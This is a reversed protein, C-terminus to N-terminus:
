RRPRRKGTPSPSACAADEAPPSLAVAPTAQLLDALEAAQAMLWKRFVRLPADQDADARSLLYYEAASPLDAAFPAVLEDRFDCTALLVSPVIAIGKAERAAQLAMFFHGFDLDERARRWDVGHASLWDPWAHARSANHLLRHRRLDAAVRIPAIQSALRRSLVPVLADPFMYDAHVGRWDDTMVLDVRPQRREYRKGPLAGCAVALDVTGTAVAAPDISTIIRVEVGSYAHTFSALRPMLWQSALTPLISLTLVRHRTDAQLREIARGVDNLARQVVGLLERGEDTLVVRRTMRLFLPKGISEELSRIQRSVAGQTLHLEAAAQTFSLQRGAAEFVRLTHLPPLRRNMVWVNGCSM